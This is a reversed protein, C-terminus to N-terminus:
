INVMAKPILVLDHSAFTYVDGRSYSNWAVVWEIDNFIITGGKVATSRWFYEGWGNRVTSYGGKAYPAGDSIGKCAGSFSLKEYPIRAENLATILVAKSTIALIGELADQSLGCPTKSM